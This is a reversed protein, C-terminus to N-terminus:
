GTGLMDLRRLTSVLETDIEGELLGQALRLDGFSRFGTGELRGRYRSLLEKGPCIAIRTYMDDWLDAVKAEGVHAAPKRGSRRRYEGALDSTRASVLDRLPMSVEDLLDIAQQENQGTLRAIAGPVLLYNEIEKQEWVFGSAGAERLGRVVDLNEESCRYDRDLLVAVATGGSLYMDLIWKFSEVNRWNSFGGLPVFSTLRENELATLGLSNALAQLVRTEKGEVFVVRESKLATALRLNLSSGLQQMMAEYADGTPARTATPRSKDIWVIEKPAVEALLEGSHTAMITQQESNDALLTVLRRQLDPHLFVDPEDLIVVPLDRCRYLQAAIQIWIQLGDGAWAIERLARSPPEVYYLGPGEDETADYQLGALEIEPTFPAMWEAFDDFETRGDETKNQQMIWLRRRFSRSGLRTDAVQNVYDQGEAVERRELPSLVPVVGIQPVRRRVEAPRRPQPADGDEFFFFATPRAADFDELENAPWIAHLKVGSKFGVHIETQELQRM